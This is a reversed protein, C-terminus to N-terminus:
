ESIVIRNEAQGAKIIVPIADATTLSEYNIIVFLNCDHQGVASIGLFCVYFGTSNDRKDFVWFCFRFNNSTWGVPVFASSFDLAGISRIPFPSRM